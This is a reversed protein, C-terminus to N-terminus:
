TLSWNGGLDAHSRHFLWLGLALCVTGALLPAPRLAYDAFALVPTAIWIPPLFFALWAMTLLVIELRGKRSKAVPIGRSRQGHPARIAVMAISALLIIAKATWVNM